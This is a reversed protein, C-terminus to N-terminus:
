KGKRAGWRTCGLRPWPRGQGLAPVLPSPPLHPGPSPRYSPRGCPTALGQLSTQPNAACVCVCVGLRTESRRGRPWFYSALHSSWHPLLPVEPSPLLRPSPFSLGAPLRAHGGGGVEQISRISTSTRKSPPLCPAEPKGRQHFRGARRAPFGRTQALDQTDPCRPEEEQSPIFARSVTSSERPAKPWRLGLSRWVQM